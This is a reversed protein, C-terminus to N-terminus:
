QPSSLLPIKPRPSEAEIGAGIPLSVTFESGSGSLSRVTVQGGHAQVV